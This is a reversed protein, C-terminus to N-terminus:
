LSHEQFSGYLEQVEEGTILINDRQDCPAVPSAPFHIRCESPGPTWDYTEKAQFFVSSISSSSETDGAPTEYILGGRGLVVSRM